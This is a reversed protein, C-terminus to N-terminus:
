DVARTYRDTYRLGSHGLLVAVTKINAGDSLINTVISHRLCHWSIHKNIGVRKVLVIKIHIKM